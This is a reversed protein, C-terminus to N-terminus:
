APEMPQPEAQARPEPMRRGSAMGTLRSVALSEILDVDPAVGLHRCCAWLDDVCQRVASPSM